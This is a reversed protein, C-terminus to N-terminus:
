WRGDYKYGGYGNDREGDYYREDRYSAIIKNKITRIDPGVVREKPQPYAGLANFKRMLERIKSPKLINPCLLRLTSCAM